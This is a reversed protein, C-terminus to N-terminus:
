FFWSKNRTNNLNSVTTLPVRASYNRKFIKGISTFDMVTIVTGNCTHKEALLHLYISM